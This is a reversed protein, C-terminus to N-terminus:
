EGAEAKTKLTASNAVIFENIKPMIEGVREWQEKYLTVPFRGLGYVSVGGKASAKITLKNKQALAANLREIYAADKEGPLRPVVASAMRYEQTSIGGPSPIPVPKHGRLRM